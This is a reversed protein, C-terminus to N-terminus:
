PATGKWHRCAGPLLEKVPRSTVLTDTCGVLKVRMPTDPQLHGNGVGDPIDSLRFTVLM